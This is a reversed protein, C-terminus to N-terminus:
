QEGVQLGPPQGVGVGGRNAAPHPVIRVGRLPHAGQVPDPTIEGVQAGIRGGRRVHGGLDGCSDPGRQALLWGHVLDDCRWPRPRGRRAAVPGRSRSTAAATPDACREGGDADAGGREM